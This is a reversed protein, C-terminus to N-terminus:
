CESLTTITMTQNHLECKASASFPAIEGYSYFGSLVTGSGLVDRVSELEEEVRHKLVLRRGICSILLALEAAGDGLPTRSGAAATTAGDVLRDVNARMLRVYAGQPVDGAFTLSGSSEDMGLITRVVGPQGADPRLSLPFLLGSAPLDKAHPGLFTRYLELASSGDLEYVVAGESRTVLREPGFPDWGGMSGWGVRLRDGYFGLVAVSTPEVVDDCCVLTREFRGGDGALGGTVAVGAPLSERLGEVLASGNIGVGKSLAFVHSLGEAPLDRGLQRGTELSDREHMLSRYKLQVTTHDFVVATAVITDDTVSTGCIEGATSCGLFRAAPYFERLAQPVPVSELAGRSGFYIVLQATSTAAVPRTVRWGDARTWTRQEVRM